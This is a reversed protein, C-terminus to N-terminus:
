RAECKKLADHLGTTSHKTCPFHLDNSIFPRACLGKFGQSQTLCDWLLYLIAGLWVSLAHLRCVCAHLSELHM